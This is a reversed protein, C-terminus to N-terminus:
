PMLLHLRLNDQAFGMGCVTAELCLLVMHFGTKLTGRGHHNLTFARISFARAFNTSYVNTELCLFV